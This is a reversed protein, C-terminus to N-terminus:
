LCRVWQEGERRREAVTQLQQSRKLGPIPLVQQFSHHENFHLALAGRVVDAHGSGPEFVSSVEVVDGVVHEDRSCKSHTHTHTHALATPQVASGSVSLVLLHVVYPVLQGILKSADWVGGAVVLYYSSHPSLSGSVATRHTHTHLGLIHRPHHHPIGVIALSAASFVSCQLWSVQPSPGDDDLAKCAYM